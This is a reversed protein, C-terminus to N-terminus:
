SLKLIDNINCVLFVSPLYCYHGFRCGPVSPFVPDDDYWGVRLRKKNTFVDQRWVIPVVTHDIAAMVETNELLARMGLVLGDVTKSMFGAHSGVGVIGRKLFGRDCIRGPTGKLTTLGCFHAPIRMSGAGDTGMGLISGGLALLCAEGGSSGGPARFILFM